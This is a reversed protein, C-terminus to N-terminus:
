TIIRDRASLVHALDSHTLLTQALAMMRRCRRVLSAENDRRIYAAGQTALPLPAGFPAFFLNRKASDNMM